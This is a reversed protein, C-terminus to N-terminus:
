PTEKTPHDIAKRAARAARGTRQYYRRSAERYQKLRRATKEDVVQPPSAPPMKRSAAHDAQVAAQYLDRWYTATADCAQCRCGDVWRRASGHDGPAPRDVM